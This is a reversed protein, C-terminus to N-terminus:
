AEAAQIAIDVDVREEPTVSETTVECRIAFLRVGRAAAARMAEGFAPDTADNPAFSHADNRQIIVAAAPIFGDETAGALETMHRAGRLTPADPFRDVDDIVLTCSKAEILWLGTDCSLLLDLRSDRYQVERQVDLCIGLEPILGADCAELFLAPPLRSDLCILSDSDPARVLVVDHSTRRGPADRPAVWLEVGEYLLEFMRGPNPMHCYAPQGALDVWTAFRNPRSLFSARALGEPLRM